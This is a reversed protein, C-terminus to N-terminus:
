LSPVYAQGKQKAPRGAQGGTIAVLGKKTSASPEVPSPRIAACARRSGGVQQGGGRGGAARLIEPDNADRLARHRTPVM